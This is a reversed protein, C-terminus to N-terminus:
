NKLIILYEIHNKPERKKINYNSSFNRKWAAIKLLAKMNLAKFLELICPADFIAPIIM